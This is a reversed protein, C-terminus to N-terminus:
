TWQQGRAGRDDDGAALEHASLAGVQVAGEEGALEESPMVGRPDRDDAVGRRARPPARRPAGPRDRRRRPRARASARRGCPRARARGRPAARRRRPAPARSRPLDRPPRRAARAARCRSRGRRGFCAVLGSPATEIPRAPVARAQHHRPRSHRRRVERAARSSCASQGRASSSPGSRCATSARLSGGTGGRAGSRRRWRTPRPSPARRPPRRRRRTSAVIQARSKSIWTSRRTSGPRLRTRFARRANRSASPSWRNPSSSRDM